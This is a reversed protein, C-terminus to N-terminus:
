HRRLMTRVRFWQIAEKDPVHYQLDTNRDEIDKKTIRRHVIDKHKCMFAFLMKAMGTMNRKNMGKETVHAYSSYNIVVM